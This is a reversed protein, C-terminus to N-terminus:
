ATVHTFKSEEGSGAASAEGSSHETVGDDAVDLPFRVRLGDELGTDPVTMQVGRGDESVDSGEDPVPPSSAIAASHIEDRGTEGTRGEADSSLPM